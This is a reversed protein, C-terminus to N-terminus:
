QTDALPRQSDVDSSLSGGQWQALSFLAPSDQSTNWSQIKAMQVSPLHM